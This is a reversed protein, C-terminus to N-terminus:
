RTHVEPKPVKWKLPFWLWCCYCNSWTKVKQPAAFVGASAVRRPEKPVAGHCRRRDEGCNAAARAATTPYVLPPSTPKVSGVQLFTNGEFVKPVRPLTSAFVWYKSECVLPFCFLVSTISFEWSCSSFWCKHGSGERTEPWVQKVFFVHIEISKLIASVTNASACM